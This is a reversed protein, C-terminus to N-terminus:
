IFLAPSSILHSLIGVELMGHSFSLSFQTKWGGMCWAQELQQIWLKEIGENQPVSLPLTLSPVKKYKDESKENEWLNVKTM